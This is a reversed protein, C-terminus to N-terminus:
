IFLDSAASGSLRGYCERICLLIIGLRSCPDLGGVFGEGQDLCEVELCHVWIGIGFQLCGTAEPSAPTLDNSIM